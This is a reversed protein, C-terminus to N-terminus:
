GRYYALGAVLGDRIEATLVRRLRGGDRAENDVVATVTVGLPYGDTRIIRGLRAGDERMEALVREVADPGRAQWSDDGTISRIMATPGFLAPATEAVRGACCELLVDLVRQNGQGSGDTVPSTGPRGPDSRLQRAKRALRKAVNPPGAPKALTDATAYGLEVLLPGAVREVTQRDAESLSGEWKSAAVKVDEPRLNVPTTMELRLAELTAPTAPLDLWDFVDVMRAEPDALLDEYRVERYRALSPGDHRAAEVTERWEQAADEYTDPGWHRSVLSRAVDRGDRIIHLVAADPYIEGILPLVKAHWPTRELIHTADPRLQDRLGVFVRDCFDRLADLLDDRDMYTKGVSISAPSGHQFLETLPSIGHTFLYTETPAAVLAPHCELARQLWLTGSRRAGVVFVM